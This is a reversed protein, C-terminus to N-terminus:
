YDEEHRVDSVGILLNFFLLGLTMRWGRHDQKFPGICLEFIFWSDSMHDLQLSLEGWKTVMFHKDWLTTQENEGFPNRLDLSIFM